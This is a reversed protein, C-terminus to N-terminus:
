LLRKRYRYVDIVTFDMDSNFTHTGKLTKDWSPYVESVPKEDYEFENLSTIEFLKFGVGYRGTCDQSPRYIKGNRFFVKGAPRATSIDSIVPNLPHSRWEGSFLNDTYFLFLETSNGSKCKTQDLATFMWWKDRYQFLTSDVASVEEMLNREFEWKYPFETCRYLEITRNQATEPLMYYVGDVKFVQPYSMHYPNIIVPKSDILNGQKDLTLVSLHARDKSYVFEEVFVFYSDDSSIVFPDAWFIDTSSVLKRFKSFDPLINKQKEGTEFLIQWNFADTFVLKRFVTGAIASLYIFLYSIARGPGPKGSYKNERNGPNNYRTKQIEIFRKGHNRIGKLIRPMFLANRWFVMNRNVNISYRCTAETSVFLIDGEDKYGDFLMLASRTLPNRNLVEFIGPLLGGTAPSKDASYTLMGYVSARIISNPINQCGIQLFIDPHIEKIMGIVEDQMDNLSLVPVSDILVSIDIEKDYDAHRGFGMRDVGDIMRLIALPFGGERKRSNDNADKNEVVVVLEAYESGVIEKLAQYEWNPIKNDKIIVGVRLKEKM